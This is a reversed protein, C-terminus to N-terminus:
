GPQFCLGEPIFSERSLKFASCIRYGRWSLLCFSPMRHNSENKPPQVFIYFDNKNVKDNIGSEFKNNDINAM